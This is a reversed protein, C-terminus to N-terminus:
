SFRSVKSNLLAIILLPNSSNAFISSGAVDFIFGPPLYRVSLNSVTIFSYTSGEQFYSEPNTVLLGWNGHLYPYKIIVEAKIENGNKAWNVIFDQNGYWRNFNGGKMYPYWKETTNETDEIKAIM